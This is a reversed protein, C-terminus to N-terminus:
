STKEFVDLLRKQFRLGDNGLGWPTTELVDPTKESVELLRKWFM